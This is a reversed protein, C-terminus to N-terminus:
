PELQIIRAELDNIQTIMRAIVDDQYQTSSIALEEDKSLTIPM